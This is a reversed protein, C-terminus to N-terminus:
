SKRMMAVPRLQGEILNLSKAGIAESLGNAMNVMGFFCGLSELREAFGGAGDDNAGHLACGTKARGIFEGENQFGLQAAALDAVTHGHGKHGRLGIDPMEAKIAHTIGLPKQFTFHALV